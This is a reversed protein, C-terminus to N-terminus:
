VGIEGALKLRKASFDLVETPAIMAAVIVAGLSLVM